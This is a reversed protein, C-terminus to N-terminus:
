AAAPSALGFVEQARLDEWLQPPVAHRNMDDLTNVWVSSRDIRRAREICAVMVAGDGNIWASFGLMMLPGHAWDDPTQGVVRAWLEACDAATRRGICLLLKDLANVEGSLVALRALDEPKIPEDHSCAALLRHHVDLAEADWEGWSLAALEDEADLCWREVPQPCDEGPGAVVAVAAERSPLAVLGAVVAQAAASTAALEATSGWRGNGEGSRSHWREPQVSVSDLVREPGVWVEAMALAEDALDENASWCALMVHPNTFRELASLVSHRAADPEQLAALPMAGTLEVRKGELVLFVLREDPQYGLVYPILSLFDASDRISVRTRDDTQTTM